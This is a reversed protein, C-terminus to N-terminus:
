AIVTDIRRKGIDGSLVIDDGLADFRKCYVITSIFEIDILADLKRSLDPMVEPSSSERPDCLPLLARAALRISRSSSEKKKEETRRNEKRRELEPHRVCFARRLVLIGHLQRQPLDIHDSPQDATIRRVQPQHRIRRVDLDRPSAAFYRGHYPDLTTV